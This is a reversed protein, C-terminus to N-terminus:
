EDLGVVVFNRCELIKGVGVRIRGRQEDVSVIGLRGGAVDISRGIWIPDGEMPVVVVQPAYFSWGDYATLYHQNAVDSIILLELGKAQMQQRVNALRTAYEEKSFPLTIM